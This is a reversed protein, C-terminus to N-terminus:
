ALSLAFHWIDQCPCQALSLIHASKYRPDYDVALDALKLILCQSKGITQKGVLCSCQMLRLLNEDASAAQGPHVQGCMHACATLLHGM